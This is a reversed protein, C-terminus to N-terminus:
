SYYGKAIQMEENEGLLLDFSHDAKPKIFVQEGQGGCSLDEPIVLRVFSLNGGGVSELVYDRHVHGNGVEELLKENLRTIMEASSDESGASLLAYFRINSLFSRLADMTLDESVI